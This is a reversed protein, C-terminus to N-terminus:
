ELEQGPLLGLNSNQQFHPPTKEDLFFQAEKCEPPNMYAFIGEHSLTGRTQRKSFDQNFRARFLPLGNWIM